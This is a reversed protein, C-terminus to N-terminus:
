VSPGNTTLNPFGPVLVPFVFLFAPVFLVAAEMAFTNVTTAIVFGLLVLMVLGVPLIGIGFM